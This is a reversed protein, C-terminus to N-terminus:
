RVYVLRVHTKELPMNTPMVVDFRVDPGHVILMHQELLFREDPSLIHDCSVLPRLEPSGFKMSAIHTCGDPLNYVPAVTARRLQWSEASPILTKPQFLSALALSLAFTLAFAAIRRYM